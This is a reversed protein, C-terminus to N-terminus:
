IVKRRAKENAFSDIIADLKLGNAMGYEISLIALGTIRQQSM